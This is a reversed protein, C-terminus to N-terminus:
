LRIEIATVAEGDGKILLDLDDLSVWARGKDGWGTGWSNVMRVAGQSGDPCVKDRDAGVIRWEHGGVVDGTPEIFGNHINPTFMDMFWNTGVLVPGNTLLWAVLTEADFAWRYETIYGKDKLAKMLGLTSTGDYDTGAWQDREQAWRYLDEPTFEPENTTPGGLLWGYGAFGVCQPTDLQDLVEAGWWFKRRVAPPVFEKPLAFNRNRPDPQSLRGLGALESTV